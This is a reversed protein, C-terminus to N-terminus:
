GNTRRDFKHKQLAMLNIRWGCKSCSYWGKSYEIGKVQCDPSKKTHLERLLDLTAPALNYTAM